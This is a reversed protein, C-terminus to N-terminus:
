VLSWLDGDVGLPEVLECTIRSAMHRANGEFAAWGRDDDWGKARQDNWRRVAFARRFGERDDEFQAAHTLEHAITNVLGVTVKRGPARYEIRHLTKGHIFEGGPRDVPRLATYLGNRNPHDPFEAPRVEYASELPIFRRVIVDAIAGAFMKVAAPSNAKVPIM